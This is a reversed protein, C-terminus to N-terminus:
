PYILPDERHLIWWDYLEDLVQQLTPWNMHGIHEPPGIEQWTRDNFIHKHFADAHGEREYVHDNDYRFIERKPPAAFMAQYRYRVGRVQGSANRELIKDVHLVIDGKCFIAGELRLLTPNLAGFELTDRDVFYTRLKDM